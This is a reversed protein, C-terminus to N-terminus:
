NWYITGGGDVFVYIQELFPEFFPQLTSTHMCAPVVLVEGPGLRVVLAKIFELPGSQVLTSVYECVALNVFNYLVEIAYGKM